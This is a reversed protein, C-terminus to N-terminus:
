VQALGLVIDLLPHLWPNMDDIDTNAVIWKKHKIITYTQEHLSNEGSIVKTQIEKKM